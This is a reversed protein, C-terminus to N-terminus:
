DAAATVVVCSNHGGFGYSPVLATRLATSKAVNAVHLLECGPDPATLNVTPPATGERLACTTLAVALAGAAGLLHGTASKTSSVLVRGAHEGFVGRIATAEIPDGLPTGPAHANLYDVDAPELGARRLARRMCEAAGAGEPDPATMHVADSTAAYSRLEALPEVGRARAHVLTELVMVVAGESLVFGDRESDFPRSAGAPDDNRRSLAGLRAFGAIGLPHVAAETGGALVVNADGRRLLELAHGLADLSTACASSVSVNPGRAGLMMGVAVSAADPVIMPVLLPSIARPGRKHLIKTQEEYTAIGGCGCGILVGVDYASPGGIELNAQAVAELAGALSMQVFRDTRRALKAPLLGLPDFDRAEGAIRVPYDAADFLTIPRIGSRGSRVSDWTSPLDVGNPTIAGIGTIVVREASRRWEKQQM